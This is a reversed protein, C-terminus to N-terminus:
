VAARVERQALPLHWAREWCFPKRVAVSAGADWPPWSAGDVCSGPSHPPSQGLSGMDWSPEDRLACSNLRPSTQLPGSVSAPSLRCLFSPLLWPQTM